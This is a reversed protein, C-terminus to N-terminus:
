GSVGAAGAEVERYAGDPFEAEEDFLGGFWSPETLRAPPGM